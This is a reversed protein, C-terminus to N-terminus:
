LAVVLTSLCSIMLFSSHTLTPVGVFLHLGVLPGYLDPLKPVLGNLSLFLPFSKQPYSPPM